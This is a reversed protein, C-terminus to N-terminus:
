CFCCIQGVWKIFQYKLEITGFDYSKQASFLVQRPDGRIFIQQNCGRSARYACHFGPELVDNSVEVWLSPECFFLIKIKARYRWFSALTYNDLHFWYEPNSCNSLNWRTTSFSCYCLSLAPWIKLNQFNTPKQSKHWIYGPFDRAGDALLIFIYFFPPQWILNNTGLRKNLNGFSHNQIMRRSASSQPSFYKIQCSVENFLM